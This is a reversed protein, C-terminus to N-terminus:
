PKPLPVGSNAAPDIQQIWFKLLAIEALAQISFTSLHNRLGEVSEMLEGITRPAEAIMESAAGNSIAVM